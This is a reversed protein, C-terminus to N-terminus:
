GLRRLLEDRLAKETVEASAFLPSRMPLSAVQGSVRAHANVLEKNSMREIKAIYRVTAAPLEPIAGGM